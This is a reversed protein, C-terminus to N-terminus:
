VFAFGSRGDVGICDGQMECLFRPFEAHRGSLIFQNLDQLGKVGRDGNFLIFVGLDAFDDRCSVCQEAILGSVVAVAVALAVARIGIRELADAVCSQFGLSQFIIVFVHGDALASTNRDALASVAIM